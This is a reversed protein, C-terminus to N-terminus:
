PDSVLTAPVLRLEDYRTYDLYDKVDLRGPGCGTRSVRVAAASGTALEQFDAFVGEVVGADPALAGALGGGQQVDELM